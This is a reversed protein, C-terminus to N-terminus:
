KPRDEVPIYKIGKSELREKLEKEKREDQRDLEEIMEPFYVPLFYRNNSNPKKSNEIKEQVFKKFSAALPTGEYKDWYVTSFDMIAKLIALREKTNKTTEFMEYAKSICDSIRELVLGLELVFGYEDTVNTLWLKKEERIKLAARSVTSRSIQLKKAIQSETYSQILM